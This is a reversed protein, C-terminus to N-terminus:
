IQLKLRSLALSAKSQVTSSSHNLLHTFYVEPAKASKSRNHMACIPMLNNAEDQGGLALPYVHDVQQVPADCLYCTDPDINERQWHSRLARLKERSVRLLTCKRCTSSLGDALGLDSYYKSLPLFFKCQRCKKIGDPQLRQQEEVLQEASRVKNTVRRARQKAAITDRNQLNYERRKDINALRYARKQELIAARNAARYLHSKELIHDRNVAYNTKWRAAAADKTSSHYDRQAKKCRDCRCGYYTYGTITGHQKADEGLLRKVKASM